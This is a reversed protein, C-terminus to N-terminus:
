RLRKTVLSQSFTQQNLEHAEGTIKIAAAFGTLVKVSHFSGSKVERDLDIYCRSIWAEAWQVSRAICELRM